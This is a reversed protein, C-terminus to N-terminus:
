RHSEGKKKEKKKPNEGSGLEKNKDLTTEKGQEKNKSLTTVKGQEKNKSLTTV